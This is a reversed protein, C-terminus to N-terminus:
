KKAWFNSQPFKERDLKKTWTKPHSIWNKPAMWNKPDASMGAGPPSAAAGGGV